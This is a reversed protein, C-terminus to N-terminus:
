ANVLTFLAAYCVSRVRRMNEMEAVARAYGAKSYEEVRELEYSLTAKREKLESELDSIEEKLAVIEPNDVPEDVVDDAEEHNRGEEFADYTEGDTSMM